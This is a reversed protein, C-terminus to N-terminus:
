RLQVVVVSQEASFVFTRPQDTPSDPAATSAPIPASTAKPNQSIGQPEGPGLQGDENIDQFAFIVYNGYGLNHTKWVAQQGGIPVSGMRVPTASEGFTEAEYLMAVVNGEDSICGTIQATLTNGTALVSQPSSRATATIVPMLDFYGVVGALFAVVVATALLWNGKNERWVRIGQAFASETKLDKSVMNFVPSRCSCPQRGARVGAKLGLM